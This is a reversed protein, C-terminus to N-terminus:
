CSRFGYKFCYVTVLKSLSYRSYASMLNKTLCNPVDCVSEACLLLFSKKIIFYYHTYQDILRVIQCCHQLRQLLSIENHYSAITQEDDVDINVCKVACMKMDPGLAEYVKSSGGRGIVSLMVYPKGNIM